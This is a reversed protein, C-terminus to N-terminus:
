SKSFVEAKAALKLMPWVQASALCPLVKAATLCSPNFVVKHTGDSSARATCSASVPTLTEPHFFSVM